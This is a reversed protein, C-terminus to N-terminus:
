KKKASCVISKWLYPARGANEFNINKFGSERLMKELSSNSFFKVHGGDWDVGFHSDWKNLLSILLNKLYGHYPTTVILVGDDSLADYAKDFFVKPSYLHEVVESSIICDFKNGNNLDLFDDYLSHVKWTVNQYKDRALLIGDNSLDVGIVRFSMKSLEHSIYGSGCGADLLTKPNNNTIDLTKKILKKIKPLVYSHHEQPAADKWGFEYGTNSM